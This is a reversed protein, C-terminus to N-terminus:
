RTVRRIFAKGLATTAKIALGVVLAFVGVNIVLVFAFAMVEDM